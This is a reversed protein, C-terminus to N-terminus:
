ILVLCAFRFTPYQTVDADKGIILSPGNWDYHYYQMWSYGTVWSDYYNCGEPFVVPLTIILGSGLASCTTCAQNWFVITDRHVPVWKSGDFKLVDGPHASSLGIISDSGIFYNYNMNVWKSGDWYYVGVGLTANTNYVLMGIIPTTGNLNATSSALSVRPLALAGKNGAPTADDNTNLDLVAAANPAGNGGIRVQAKVGAAGLGM